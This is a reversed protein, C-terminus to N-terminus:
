NPNIQNLDLRVLRHQLQKRASYIRSKVAPVSIHLSETIEDYRYGQYSLEFPIRITNNLNNVEQNIENFVLLGPGENGAVQPLDSGSLDSVDVPLTAQHKNKKRGNLFVTRMITSLWAKMNSGSIFSDRYLLAKLLTDQVLDNSCEENHTLYRAFGKIRAEQCQLQYSFELATM